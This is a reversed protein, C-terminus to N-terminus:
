FFLTAIAEVILTTIASAIISTIISEKTEKKM